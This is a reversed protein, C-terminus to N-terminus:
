ASRKTEAARDQGHEDVVRRGHRELIADVTHEERTELVRPFGWVQVGEQRRHRGPKSKRAISAPVIM